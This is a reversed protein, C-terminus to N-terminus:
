GFITQAKQYVLSGITHGLDVGAIGAMRTHVGINIRGEIVSTDFDGWNAFTVTIDTAPAYGQSHSGTNAVNTLGDVFRPDAQNIIKPEMVYSGAPFTRSYGATESGFFRRSVEVFAGTGTCHGCPYEPGSNQIFSPPRYARWESASMSQVGLYPGKWSDVTQGQNLCQIVATPRAFNYMRKADFQAVNADSCAQGVLFFYKIASDVSLDRNKAIGLALDHRWWSLLWFEAHAKKQDDLSGFVTLIEDHTANFAAETDTGYLYPPGPRNEGTASAWPKLNVFQTDLWPQVVTSVGDSALLLPPQWHNISKLKSCDTIGIGPMPDNVATYATTDSYIDGTGRPDQGNSNTRDVSNTYNLVKEAVWNGRTFANTSYSSTTISADYGLGAFFTDIKALLTSHMFRFEHKMCRYVAYSITQEKYLALTNANGSIKSTSTPITPVSPLTGSVYPIWANYACHDFIAEIRMRPSLRPFILNFNGTFTSNRFLQAQFDVWRVPISYQTSSPIYSVIFVFLLLTVTVSHSM